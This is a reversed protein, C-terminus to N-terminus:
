RRGPPRVEEVAEFVGNLLVQEEFPAIRELRRAEAELVAPEDRLAELEDPSLDVYGVTIVQDPDDDNRLIEVRQLQGLWPDPEWARRFDEYSGPKIQRVTVLCMM